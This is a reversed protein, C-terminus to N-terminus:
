SDNTFFTTYWAEFQRSFMLCLELHLHARERNIGTGTYGMVGIRQGRRVTEGPQVAVSSLHGYLSYYNSGDWRHEIVIYKGYNSYGPVLNVHVVKGDAIARVEDLADGNADRHVPRIDIGEHFRTYVLGGATDTPDRVFGYKGGEWPASKMGKYNREVYQYFAPGDGSFLADNDTPLVLDVIGHTEAILSVASATSLVIAATFRIVFSSYRFSSSIVFSLNQRAFYTTM